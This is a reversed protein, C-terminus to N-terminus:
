CAPAPAPALAMPCAEALDAAERRRLPPLERPQAAAQPSAVGAPLWAVQAPRGDPGTSLWLREGQRVALTEGPALMWDEAQGERTVWVRGGQALLAGARGAKLGRAGVAPVDAQWAHSGLAEHQQVKFM